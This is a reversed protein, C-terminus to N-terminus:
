SKTTCKEFANQWQFLANGFANKLILNNREKYDEIKAAYYIYPHPFINKRM